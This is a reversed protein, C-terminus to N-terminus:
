LLLFHNRIQYALRATEYGEPIINGPPPSYTTSISSVRLNLAAVGVCSGHVWKAGM